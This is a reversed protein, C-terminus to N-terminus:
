ARMLSALARISAWGAAATCFEGYFPVNLIILWPHVGIFVSLLCSNCLNERIKNFETRASEHFEHRSNGARGQLM